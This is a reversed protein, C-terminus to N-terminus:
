TYHKTYQRENTQYLNIISQVPNVSVVVWASSFHIFSHELIINHFNQQEHCHNYKDYHSQQVLWFYGKSHILGDLLTSINLLIVIFVNRGSVM